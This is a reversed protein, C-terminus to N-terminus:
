NFKSSDLNKHDSHISDWNFEKRMQQDTKRWLTFAKFDYSKSNSLAEKRMWPKNSGSLHYVFVNKDWYPIPSKEFHSYTIYAVNYNYNLLQISIRYRDKFNNIIPQDALQKFQNNSEIFRKAERLLKNMTEPNCINESIVFLGTNIPNLNSPTPQKSRSLMRILFKVWNKIRINANFSHALFKELKSLLAGNYSLIHVKFINRIFKRFKNEGIYNEFEGVALIGCNKITFIDDISKIFLLDADFCVVQDFGTESFPKLFLYAASITSSKSFSDILNAPLSVKVFIVHPVIRKIKSQSEKSLPSLEDHYYIKCTSKNFVESTKKLSYLSVLLGPLYQDNSITVFLFNGDM